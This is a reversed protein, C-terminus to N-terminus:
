LMYSPQGVSQDLLRLRVVIDDTSLLGNLWDELIPKLDGSEYTQRVLKAIWATRCLLYLTFSGSPTIACVQIQASINEGSTTKVRLTVNIGRFYERERQLLDAVASFIDAERAARLEEDTPQELQVYM